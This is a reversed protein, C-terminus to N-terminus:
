APALVHALRKLAQQELQRVREASVGYKEGLEKLGDRGDERLWRSEVIDRSRPDLEALAAHLGAESQVQWQRNEVILDPRASDDSLYQAPAPPAQDDDADLPDFSVSRETLRTDMEIVDATDVGLREAVVQAEDRSIHGLRAKHRRLNFFLKRQAKTTAIKLIHWNRLVYEHIEARIWHVAFSVLRVGRDPDYRRVAKMLGVSGEQVLDAMPLGYGSYRRAMHVVYRLHSFVLARAAELDDHERLRVALDREEQASLYPARYASQIFQDLSGASAPVWNQVTLPMASM